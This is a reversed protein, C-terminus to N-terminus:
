AHTLMHILAGLATRFDGLSLSICRNYAGEDVGFRVLLFQHHEGGAFQRGLTSRLDLNMQYIAYGAPLSDLIKAREGRAM